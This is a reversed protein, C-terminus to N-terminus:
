DTSKTYKAIVYAIYKSRDVSTQLGISGSASPSTTAWIGDVRSKIDMHEMGGDVMGEVSAVAYGNLVVNEAGAPFVNAIYKVDNDPLAGLSILKTYVSKGNWREVTRYETNVVMPPNVYEWQNWPDLKRNSPHNRVAITLKDGTSAARRFAIQASQADYYKCNLGYWWENDPCYQNTRVFGSAYISNWSENGPAHIEGLGYGAPAAGLQEITMGHPNQKDAVHKKIDDECYKIEEWVTGNIEIVEPTAFYNNAVFPFNLLVENAHSLDLEIEWIGSAPNESINANTNYTLSTESDVILIYPMFEPAYTKIRIKKGALTDLVKGDEKRVTLGYTTCGAYETIERNGDYYGDEFDVDLWDNMSYIEDAEGINNAIAQFADGPTPDEVGPCLREAVVDPLVAAKSYPTGEVVPKDDRILTIGFPEGRQMKPYEGGPIVASYQGPAGPIRDKM